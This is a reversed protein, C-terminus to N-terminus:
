PSASTALALYSNDSRIMLYQSVFDDLAKSVDTETIAEGSHKRWLNLLQRATMTQDCAMYLFRRFGSLVTLRRKAIPRFDWILLRREKDLSFLSSKRYDARWKAIEAVLPKVYEAVNRREIYDFRFYYALNTIAEPKFPYVYNYALQPSLNAFGLREADDFNPSFRDVRIIASGMPPKLHSILPIVKSMELYDEATEGPFGWIIHYFVDLSLEKCWKILQINQLAGVGKRM